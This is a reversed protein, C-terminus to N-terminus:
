SGADSSWGAERSSSSDAVSTSSMPSSSEAYSSTSSRSAIALVQRASGSTSRLDDLQPESVVEGLALDALPDAVRLHM